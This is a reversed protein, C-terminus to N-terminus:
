SCDLFWRHHTPPDYRLINAWKSIAAGQGQQEPTATSFKEVGPFMQRVRVRVESLGALYIKQDDAAFTKLVRDIFYVVGAEKAGPTNDAPIIRAAIADVEAAQEPSFFEFRQPPASLIAHRAHDAAALLVPWQADVWTASLAGVTGRLFRRRSSNEQVPSNM